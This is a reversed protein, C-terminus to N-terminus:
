SYRGYGAFIQGKKEVKVARKGVDLRV